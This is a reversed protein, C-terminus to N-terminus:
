LQAEVLELRVEEGNHYLRNYVTFSNHDITADYFFNVDVGAWPVDSGPRYLDIWDHTLNNATAPHPKAIIIM